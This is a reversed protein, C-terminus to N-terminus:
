DLCLLRFPIATIRASEIGPPAPEGAFVPVAPAMLRPPKKAPM